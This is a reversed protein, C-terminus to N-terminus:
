SKNFIKNWKEDPVDSFSILNAGSTTLDREKKQEYKDMKEVNRYITKNGKKIAVLTM